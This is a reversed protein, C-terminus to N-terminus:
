QKQCEQEESEKVDVSCILKDLPIKPTISVSIDGNNKFHVKVEDEEVNYRACVYTSVQAIIDDKVNNLNIM